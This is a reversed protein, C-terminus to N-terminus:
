NPTEVTPDLEVVYPLIWAGVSYQLVKATLDALRRDDTEFRTGSCDEYWREARNQIDRLRVCFVMLM